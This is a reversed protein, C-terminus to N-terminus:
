YIIHGRGRQAPIADWCYQERTSMGSTPHPPGPFLHSRWAIQPVTIHISTSSYSTLSRAPSPERIPWQSHPNVALGPSPSPTTRSRDAGQAPQAREPNAVQAEMPEGHYAQQEAESLSLLITCLIPGLEDQPPQEMARDLGRDVLLVFISSYATSLSADLAESIEVPVLPIILHTSLLCIIVYSQYLPFLQQLVPNGQIIATDTLAQFLCPHTLVHSLLTEQQTIPFHLFHFPIEAAPISLISPM